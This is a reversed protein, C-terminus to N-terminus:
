NGLMGAFVFNVVNEPADECEPCKPCPSPSPIPSCSTCPSPTPCPSPPQIASYPVVLQYDEPPPVVQGPQTMFVMALGLGSHTLIHCHFLWAGPNNAVFRIVLWGPTPALDGPLLTTDRVPPDILNLQPNDPYAGLGQGLVFFNHGHIHMPHALLPATVVLQVVDGQNVDLPYFQGRNYNNGNLYADLLPPFSPPTFVKGNITWTGLAPDLLGVTMFVLKDYDPLTRPILPHLQDIDM